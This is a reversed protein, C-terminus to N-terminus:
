AVSVLVIVNLGDPKMMLLLLMVVLVRAVFTATRMSADRNFGVVPPHACVISSRAPRTTSTGTTLEFVPTPVITPLGAWKVPPVKNTLTENSGTACPVEVILRGVGGGVPKLVGTSKWDIVAVTVSGVSVM